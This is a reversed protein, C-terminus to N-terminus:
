IATVHRPQYLMVEVEGPLVMTITDGFGATQRDDRFEIGRDRLEAVTAELDDCMLCLEHRPADGPHVALEAPPLAFILWGDHVDVHRWGIVDRLLARLAEPRPTHFLAHVGTIAM